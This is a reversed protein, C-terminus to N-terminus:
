RQWAEAAQANGNQGARRLPDLWRLMHYQFQWNNDSFPDEAWTPAAPLQWRKHPPLTLHGGCLDAVLKKDQPGAVFHTGLAQREATKLNVM